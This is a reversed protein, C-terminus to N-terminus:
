AADRRLMAACALAAITTSALSLAALILAPARASTGPLPAAAAVGFILIPIMLPLVLISLVLGGRRISATLAAGVAGVFTLAPTGLLLTAALGAMRDPPLALMLGLAPAALALALGTGLWHALGKALVGAEMPLPSMRILDLSGDEEDAQFLRDLGILTALVASLWLIAPAIRALLALDPGIAFPVLAVLMLFFVLSPGAGGGVRLTLALDRRLLALFPRALATREEGPSTPPICLLDPSPAGGGPAVPRADAEREESADPLPPSAHAAGGGVREAAAGQEREANLPGAGREAAPPPLSAPDPPAPPPGPPGEDAGRRPAGEGGPPPPAPTGLRLEGAGPLPFPEHTAVIAIGGAARHAAVLAALLARAQADLANTPEDLLWVPRPAALLRALALRRRQGSSLLACPLDAAPGLGLRALAPDVAPAAGGLLAAWGRLTERPTLAGKIADRPGILHVQAPLEAEGAGELAVAGRAPAILGALVRLLSTKGAGNPGTLLLAGGAPLAFSLGEFLPRESRVLALDRALFRM